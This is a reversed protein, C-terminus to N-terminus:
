AKKDKVSKIIISPIFTFVSGVVAVFALIATTVIFLLVSIIGLFIKAIIMFLISDLTLSFIFGPLKFTFGGATFMEQIVGGWMFQSVFTFSCIAGTALMVLYFNQKSVLYLTLFLAINILAFAAGIILSLNRKYGDPGDIDRFDNIFDFLGFVSGFVCLPVFFLLAGYLGGDSFESNFCLVAFLVYCAIALVSSVILKADFGGGLQIQRQYELERAVKQEHERQRTLREDRQREACTNCIIKPYTTNVEDEKLM